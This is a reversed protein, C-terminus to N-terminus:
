ETTEPSGSMESSAPTKASGPSLFDVGRQGERRNIDIIAGAIRDHDGDTISEKILAWEDDAIEHESGDDDVFVATRKAVNMFFTETNFGFSQDGAFGKRPPNQIVFKNYEGFSVATVRLTISHERMRDEIEEVVRRADGVLDQGLRLDGQKDDDKARQTAMLDAMARDRELTLEGNLCITIDRHAFTRNALKKSLVSM